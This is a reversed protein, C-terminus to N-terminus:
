FFYGISVAARAMGGIRFEPSVFVHTGARVRIGVGANWIWDQRKYDIRTDLEHFYGVGGILYAVARKRRDMLDVV